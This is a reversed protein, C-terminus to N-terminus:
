EEFEPSLAGLPCVLSCDGCNECGNIMTVGGEFLILINQPCVAVCAGCYGCQDTIIKMNVCVM